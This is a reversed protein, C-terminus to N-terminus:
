LIVFPLLFHHWKVPFHMIILCICVIFMLLFMFSLLCFTSFTVTLTSWNCYLSTKLWSGFACLMRVTSLSLHCPKGCLCFLILSLQVKGTHYMACHSFYCPCLSSVQWAPLAICAWISQLSAMLLMIAFYLSRSNSALLLQCGTCIGYLHHSM